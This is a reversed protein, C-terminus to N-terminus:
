RRTGLLWGLRASSLHLSRYDALLVVGLDHMVRAARPGVYRIHWPEYAYGTRDRYGDPYSLVFGFRYAHWALWRGEGTAGFCADLYCEGRTTDLDVALGTQHESHGARASTAEASARGYARVWSEYTATQTEYSRYGSIVRLGLREAKAAAVMRDLQDAVEARLQYAPDAPWPVLDPPAYDRPTLPHQKGVLTLLHARDDRELRTPRHDADSWSAWASGPSWPAVLGLSGALLVTRRKLETM